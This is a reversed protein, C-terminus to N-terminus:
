QHNDQVGFDNVCQPEFTRAWTVACDGVVPKFNFILANSVLDQCQLNPKMFCKYVSLNNSTPVGLQIM